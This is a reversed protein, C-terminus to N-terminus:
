EQTGHKKTHLIYQRKGLKSCVPCVATQPPNESSHKIEFEHGNPCQFSYIIEPM